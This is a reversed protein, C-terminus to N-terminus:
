GALVFKQYLNDLRNAATEWSYSAQLECLNKVIRQYLCKDSYLRIAAQVVNGTTIDELLIGSEYSSLTLSIEGKSIAILPLAWAISLYLNNPSCFDAYPYNAMLYIMADSASYLSSLDDLWGVYHLAPNSKTAEDFNGKLPGYGAIIWHVPHDLKVLQAASDIIIDSLRTQGLFGAYSVVFAGLPINLKQRVAQRRKSKQKKLIM